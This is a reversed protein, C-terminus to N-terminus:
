LFRVRHVFAGRLRWYVALPPILASTVAVEAIHAPRRSTGQLRRAIFTATLRVWIVFSAVTVGPRRLGLGLLFGVISGVIAYYDRPPEPQVRQRYLQPHKKYLLANYQSKRQQSLSVGWPAPRLPHIVVADEASVLKEGRGMFTLWLDSDERWAMAFREDFGGVAELASRLYFCNATVFEATALGAANREYDTPDDPLPVVVRGSVGTAGERIARTGAVLWEPEPICDDDTFAIVQGQAFRWGANRAAAPGRSDRVPLYHIVPGSQLCRSRWEEVQLRTSESAADDAIVIEYASPDFTQAVLGALGRELLQPRNFTPVVVSVEITV